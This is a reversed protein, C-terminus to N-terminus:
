SNGITMAEQAEVLLRVLRRVDSPTIPKEIHPCGSSELFQRIEATLIDGTLFACRSLLEPWRTELAHHFARGGMEPMRIDSLVLDFHTDEIRELARRGSNAIVVEHGDSELIDALLRAVDEEDDIVLVSLGKPARWTGEEEIEAGSARDIIPLRVVFTAGGETSEDLVIRGGHNELIRHCLALGIGTGSGEAKSTFFPEFIRARIEEPVGPGNDAVTMVIERSREDLRTTIDIRRPKEVNLLAHQANITLNTFVQAVQDSDVFVDPLSEALDMRVEIGSTRLAYATLELASEILENPDVRRSEQPQQRAMALFSKVIKACRNAAKAIREARTAVAEDHSIEQLLISQGVVVSLPNNLEHSVGALLQGMASLKESQHLAERQRTMEEEAALRDTLDIVTAVAVEEGGYDILRASLAGRFANGDARRFAADVTELRGSRRLWTLHTQRDGDSVWRAAARAADEDRPGFLTEAEKTEYIVSTDSMRYLTIPIPCADLIRRLTAEREVRDTVDVAGSIVVNEGELEIVRASLAAVFASGDLRRFRIEFDSVSGHRRLKELFIARESPDVDYVGVQSAKNEDTEGFLRNNAPSEYLIERDKLRSVVLPLPCSEIIRAAMENAPGESPMIERCVVVRAGTECAYGELSWSRGNGLRVEIRTGNSSRLHDVIRDPEAALMAGIEEIALGSLKDADRGCCRAFSRDAFILHETDDFLALGLHLAAMSDAILELERLRDPGSSSLADDKDTDDHKM